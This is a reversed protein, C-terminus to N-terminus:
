RTRCGGDKVLWYAAIGLKWTPQSRSTPMARTRSDPLRQSRATPQDSGPSISKLTTTVPFWKKRSATTPSRMTMAASAAVM